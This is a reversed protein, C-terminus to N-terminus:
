LTLDNQVKARIIGANKKDHAVIKRIRKGNLVYDIQYATKRKKRKVTNLKVIAISM